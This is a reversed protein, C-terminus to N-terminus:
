VSAKAKEIYRYLKLDIYGHDLVAPHEVHFREIAQEIEPDNVDVMAQAEALRKALPVIEPSDPPLGAEMGARLRALIEMSEKGVAKLEKKDIQDMRKLLKDQQEPTFYEWVNAGM